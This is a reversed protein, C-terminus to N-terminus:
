SIFDLRKRAMTSPLTLALSPPLFSDTPHRVTVERDIYSISTPVIHVYKCVYLIRYDLFSSDGENGGANPSYIMGCRVYISLQSLCM